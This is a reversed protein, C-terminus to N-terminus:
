KGRLERWLKVAKRLRSVTANKGILSLLPAARPGYPRGIMALYFDRYFRRRQQGSMERGFEILLEKINDESWQSEPLDELTDALRDLLGPNEIMEIAIPEVESTIEFRLHQPAYRKAWRYAKELLEVAWRTSAEDEELLGARRLRSVGESLIRKPGVIQAVIAAHTYPIQSPPKEPPNRPHSLEYTRKLIEADEPDAEELGFYVREARYYQSYYNPIETLDVVIRRTPPHSFYLYRLIQPHAIELWERPTIGAFGSSSMDKESGYERISVWEYWVGEPPEFGLLKALEAASDRSGGPTAHDKGYPEFDVGLSWWVGAWEIRWNLKSDELSAIGSYGCNSCKYRIRGGEMVELAKTSDIRGCNSCRPEVPIWDEPYPKRGRYKNILKRVEEKRPLVLKSFFEKLPGNYLERTTIIEIDGDTFEDIYPGFDAWYHEIWSDHCREPDPVKDLPWGIYRAAEDLDKFAALQEDKGKWPDVTYLTLLQRVRLGRKRLERRLAEGLLVEGRLRGIHQLGSVSLGGNFVYEGKGKKSLSEELKDVLADLWHRAM